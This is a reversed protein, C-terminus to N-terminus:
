PAAPSVQAQATLGPKVAPSPADLEIVLLGASASKIRGPIPENGAEAVQIIAAAGPTLRKTDAASIEAVFELEAPNTTIQFLDKVDRTVEEGAARKVGVLLGDVPAHVESALKEQRADELDEARSALERRAEDLNRILVEIRSASKRVSEGAADAETRAKEHEQEAKEFTLRATAGERLLMQQREYNKAALSAEARTRSAEAEARSAELRSSALQSELGNVRNELREVELKAQEEELDLRSNRIRALLQGEFVEQGEIVEVSELTGEIPAAVSEVKRARLRGAWSPNAPTESVTPPPAVVAPAAPQVKKAYWVGGAILITVAAAAWLM